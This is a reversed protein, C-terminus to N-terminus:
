KPEESKKRTWQAENKRIREINREFTAVCRRFHEMDEKSLGDTIQIGFNKQLVRGKEVLQAAKETCLLATKRRDSPIAQRILYGERVLREIHFSVIGPKLGRCKCVEGATEHGPNNAFFMLIDVALPPLQMQECLPSLAIHYADTFRLANAFMDTANVEPKSM